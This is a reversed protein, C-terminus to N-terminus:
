MDNCVPSGPDTIVTYGDSVEYIEPHRGRAMTDNWIREFRDEEKLSTVQRKLMDRHVTLFEKHTVDRALEDQANELASQLDEIQQRALDAAADRERCLEECRGEAQLVRYYDINRAAIALDREKSLEACRGEAQLARHYDANRAATLADLDQYLRACRDEAQVARTYYNDRPM